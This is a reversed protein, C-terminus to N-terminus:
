FEGMIKLWGGWQELATNAHPKEYFIGAGLSLLYKKTDFCSALALHFKNTYAGRASGSLIDLDSLKLPIPIPDNPALYAITSNNATAGNVGNIGWNEIEPKQKDLSNCALFLKETSHAWLNYGIEFEFSNKRFKCGALIDVFNHPHVCVRLTTIEVAPRTQGTRLHRLTLYRSWPKHYFDFTRMQHNRILCYDDIALFFTSELECSPAWLPMETYFSFTFAFHGNTALFPKFIITPTAKKATPVCLGASLTAIFNNNEFFTVGLACTIDSIGIAKHNRNDMAAYRFSSLAKILENGATLQQLCLNNKVQYIPIRGTIWWHELWPHLAGLDHAFSFLGGVQRQQPAITLLGDFNSPLNLWEARVQRSMAHPSTDGAVIINKKCDLLFYAQASNDPTTQLALTIFQILSGHATHNRAVAQSWVQHFAAANHSLPRYFIFTQSTRTVPKVQIQFLLVILLIKKM